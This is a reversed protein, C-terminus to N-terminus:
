NECFIHDVIKGCNEAVTNRFPETECQGKYRSPWHNVLVDLQANNELVELKVQFIDRTSARYHINHSESDLIKFKNKSYVLCTDIGRIDPSDNYKAVELDDRSVKDVL